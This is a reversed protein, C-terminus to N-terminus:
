VTGCVSAGGCLYRQVEENFKAFIHLYYLVYRGNFRM